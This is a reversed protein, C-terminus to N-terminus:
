GNNAGAIAAEEFTAMQNHLACAMRLLPIAVAAGSAEGLRMGLNILPKADLSQLIASHGPEASHHSFLFWQRSGPCIQEACLAAVSSIFGDIVVPLGTKACHLYSGVMAAIEFGGLYRLIALPSDLHSKHLLLAERIITAKHSVGEANLGTGPGALQSAPLNLLACSMASASTTNGIGMDGAIYIQIGKQLCCEVNQQGILIAQECEAESMAAQQHFNATGHAIKQDQVGKITELETVTGLNIVDLSSNLYKTLVSIAAGGSAFNRIMAATVSQPFASINEAMVGHDAAFVTIHVHDAQPINGQLAALHVALQELQGLSGAPKTLQGQRALAIEASKKDIAKPPLNLWNKFDSM